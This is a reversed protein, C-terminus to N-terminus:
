KKYTDANKVISGSLTDDLNLSSQRTLPGRTVLLHNAQWMASVSLPERAWKTSRAVRPTGSAATQAAGMTARQMPYGRLKVTQFM